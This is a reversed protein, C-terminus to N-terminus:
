KHENSEDTPITNWIYIFIKQQFSEMNVTNKPCTYIIYVSYSLGWHIHRWMLLPPGPIQLSISHRWLLTLSIIIIVFVCLCVFFGKKHQIRSWLPKFNM